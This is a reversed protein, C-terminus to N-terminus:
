KTAFLVLNKKESMMSASSKPKHRESEQQHIVREIKEGRHNNAQKYAIVQSPSMPRLVYDKGKMKFSYHNTRGNHIVGRDFQWPRGLLLHFVSMPVMNCELSDEYAGIKFSVQVTHEVKITDSDSLWQVKYRRPHKMKVLGLKSCLEESALNHCSGGEIIVKVSQGNICAKTHFIHCRQDEEQQHQLTLVKSVVLAPSSDEHFFVQDDEDENAQRHM